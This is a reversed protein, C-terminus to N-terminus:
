DGKEAKNAQHNTEHKDNSSEVSANRIGVGKDSKCEKLGDILSELLNSASRNVGKEDFDVFELENHLCSQIADM